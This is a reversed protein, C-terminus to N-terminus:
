MIILNYLENNINLDRCTLIMLLKFSFTFIILFPFFLFFKFCRNIFKLIIFCMPFEFFEQIGFFFIKVSNLFTKVEM